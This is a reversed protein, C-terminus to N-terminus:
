EGTPAPPTAAGARLQAYRSRLELEKATAARQGQELADDLRSRYKADRTTEPAPGLLWGYLAVVGAGVLAGVLAMGVKGM